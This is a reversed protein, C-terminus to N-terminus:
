NVPRISGGVPVPGRSDGFEREGKTDSRWPLRSAAGSSVAERLTHAAVVAGSSEGQRAANSAAARARRERVGPSSIKGCWARIAQPQVLVAVKVSVPEGDSDIAAGIPDGEGDLALRTPLAPGAFREQKRARVLAATADAAVMASATVMPSGVDSRVPWLEREAGPRRAPEEPDGLRADDKEMRKEVGDTREESRAMGEDPYDLICWFARLTAALREEVALLRRLFEAHRESSAALWHRAERQESLNEDVGPLPEREEAVVVPLSLLETTLVHHRLGERRERHQDILVPLSWSQELGITM